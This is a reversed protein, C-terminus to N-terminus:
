GQCSHASRAVVVARLCGPFALGFCRRERQGERVVVLATSTRIKWSWRRAWICSIGDRSCPCQIEASTGMAEGAREFLGDAEQNLEVKNEECWQWWVKVEDCLDAKPGGGKILNRVAAFSHM